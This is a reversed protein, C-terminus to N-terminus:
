VIFLALDPENALQPNLYIDPENIVDNVARKVSPDSSSSVALPM